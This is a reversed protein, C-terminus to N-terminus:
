YRVLRFGIDNARYNPEDRYRARSSGMYIPDFWSGGKVVRRVSGNAETDEPQDWKNLCWEWVNGTLDVVGYANSFQAYTKVPTPTGILSESCNCKQPDADNGWAFLQGTSGQQVLQFQEETPLSYTYTGDSSQDTLWRAFAVAEYWSVGIVPMDPSHYKEADWLFPRDTTLKWERGDNTWYDPNTYGQHIFASFQERTILTRTIEFPTVQRQAEHTPYCVQIDGKPIACWDWKDPQIILETGQSPQIVTHLRTYEIELPTSPMTGTLHGTVNKGQGHKYGLISVLHDIIANSNRHQDLNLGLPMVNNDLPSGGLKQDNVIVIPLGMQRALQYERTVWRSSTALPTAYLVFAACQNLARLIELWWQASLKGTGFMWIDFGANQLISTFSLAEDFDYQSYSIFIFTM